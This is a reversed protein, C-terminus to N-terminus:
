WGQWSDWLLDVSANSATKTRALFAVVEDEYFDESVDAEARETTSGASQAILIDLLRGDPNGDADTPFTSINTTQETATNEPDMQPPVDWGTADTTGENFAVAIVEMTDTPIIEFDNLQTRVMDFDARRRIALVATYDTAGIAGGLGWNNAGKTRNTVSVDGRVLAGMSMANVTNATTAETCELRISILMNIEETAVDGTNAVQALKPNELHSDGNAHTLTFNAHGDGYWSLYTRAVQPQTEDFTDKDYPNENGPKGGWETQDIIDGGNRIFATQSDNEIQVFYGNNRDPTTFGVELRHGTDLQNEMFFAAGWLFEYNPVYTARQRTRLEIADTADGNVSLEYTGPADTFETDESVTGETILELRESNFPFTSPTDLVSRTGNATLTDFETQSRAIGDAFRAIVANTSTVSSPNDLRDM